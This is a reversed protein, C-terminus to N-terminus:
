IIPPGAQWHRVAEFPHILMIINLTLNDRIHLGVVIEFAIALAVTLAVPLTRALWFGVVMALTDSISNVISDGFYDLSMTATRYREIIWNSNEVLEWSVEVMMAIVLRAPWSLQWFPLRSFLLWTAAYFLFGHILHSFTYWDTIHQSNESSRVVGHWLKVYGCACIPLRGMAFLISAQALLLGVAILAWQWGSLAPAAGADREPTM